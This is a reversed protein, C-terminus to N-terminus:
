QPPASVTMHTPSAFIESRTASHRSWPLGAFYAHCKLLGVGLDSALAVSTRTIARISEQSKCTRPSRPIPKVWFLSHTSNM